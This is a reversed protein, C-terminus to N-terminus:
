SFKARFATYVALRRTLETCGLVYGLEGLFGVMTVNQALSRCFFTTAVNDVHDDYPQPYGIVIQLLRYWQRTM